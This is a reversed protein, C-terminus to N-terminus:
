SADALLAEACEPDAACDRLMSDDDRNLANNTAMTAELKRLAVTHHRDRIWDRIAPTLKEPPLVLGFEVFKDVIEQVREPTEIFVGRAIEDEIQEQREYAARARAYESAWSKTKTQKKRKEEREAEKRGKQNNMSLRRSLLRTQTLAQSMTAYAPNRVVKTGVQNGTSRNYQPVTVTPEKEAQQKASEYLAMQESYATLLEADESRLFPYSALTRVFVKKEPTKLKRTPEIGMRDYNVM